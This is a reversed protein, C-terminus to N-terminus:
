LTISVTKSLVDGVLVVYVRDGSSMPTPPSPFTLGISAVEGPRLLPGPNYFKMTDNGPYYAFEYDASSLRVIARTINVNVNGDNRVNLTFTAFDPSVTYDVLALSPNRSSTAMYDRVQTFFMGGIVVTAVILVATAIFPSIARRKL